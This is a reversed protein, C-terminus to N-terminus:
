VAEMKKNAGRRTVAKIAALEEALALDKEKWARKVTEPDYGVMWPSEPRCAFPADDPGLGWARLWAQRELEARVQGAWPLDAYYHGRKKLWALVDAADRRLSLLSLDGWWGSYWAEVLLSRSRSRARGARGKRQERSRRVALSLPQPTRAESGGTGSIAEFTDYMSGVVPSFRRWRGGSAVKKDPNDKRNLIFPGVKSCHVLENTQERLNVNTGKERQNSYYLDLGRKRMQCLRVLLERGMDHWFQAPMVIAAEDLLIKGESLDIIEEISYFYRAEPCRLEAMNTYVQVPQQKFEEMTDALMSYTKGQGQLGYYMRIM